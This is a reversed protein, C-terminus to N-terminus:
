CPRHLKIQNNQIQHHRSWVAEVDHLNEPLLSRARSPQNDVSGFIQVFDVFLSQRQSQGRMQRFRAGAFVLEQVGDFTKEVTNKIGLILGSSAM